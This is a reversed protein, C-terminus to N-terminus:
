NNNHSSLTTTPTLLGVNALIISRDSGAGNYVTTRNMNVDTRSYGAVVNTPTLLGVFALIVSRDSGAGNYVITQSFNVDGAWLGYTSGTLLKMPTTPTAISNDDFVNSLLTMDAQSGATNSLAYSTNTRIGLHNRHRVGLIYNGDAVGQISLPGTGTLDVINGDRQVLGTKTALITTPDTTSRLEVVIWDVIDDSNLPQNFISLGTVSEGGGYGVHSYPNSLLTSYPETLPIYDYVRLSDVMLGSVFPGQLFVKADVLLSNAITKDGVAFAGFSTLGTRTRKNAPSEPGLDSFLGDWGNTGDNRSVANLNDDFGPLEDGPDTWALTLNATNGLPTTESIIWVANVVDTTIPTGSYGDGTTPSAGVRVSYTDNPGGTVDLTAPNYTSADYGVPFEFNTFSAFSKKMTGSSGTVVFENNDHGGVKATPGMTLDHIGLIINSAGPASFVLSDNVTMSGLLNVNIGATKAVVVDQFVATGPTVDSVTMGSFKLTNPQSGDWNAQNLFNGQIELTGDNDITGGMLNHVGGEVYLVAGAEIKVTAGSNYLLTGQAWSLSTFLSLASLTFLKM